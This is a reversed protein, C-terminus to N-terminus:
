FWRMTLLSIPANAWTAVAGGVLLGLFLPLARRHAQLGGYRLLGAKALWTVILAPLLAQNIWSLTLPYAVPHLPWWPVRLKLWMLAAMLAAGGAMAGSATASSRGLIRLDSDLDTTIMRPADLTWLHVRGSGVGIQYGLHLYAWFYLLVALPVVLALVLALRRREMRGREAMKLAELQAPAPNNRQLLFLPRMLALVGLSRPTLAQSGVVTFLISRPVDIFEHSPPGLQARVRSLFLCLGFYISLVAAITWTQMGGYAMIWWLFIVGAAAGLLAARCGFAERSEDQIASALGLAKRAVQLLFQRDLWLVSAILAYAAGIVQQDGYPPGSWANTAWGFQGALLYQIIWLLDFAILSFALDLPILYCLGIQWPGWELWTYRILDWPHHNTTYGSMDWSVPIAPLAPLLQALSNWSIWAGSIVVGLWFLRNRLIEAPRESLQVPLVTMPFALKEEEGWRRRMISNLCLCVWMLAGVVAAWLLAPVIWAKMVENQYFSSSGVYFGELVEHNMVTLWGPLIPWIMNSWGNSDTAFWFPYSITTALAGGAKWSDSAFASAVTIMIYITLIEGPSFAWRPLRHKLVQNALVMVFLLAVATEFLSYDATAYGLLLCVKAMVLANAPMLLLGICIARASVAKRTGGTPMGARAGTEGHLSM